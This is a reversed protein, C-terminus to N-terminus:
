SSASAAVKQQIRRNGNLKFILIHILLNSSIAKGLKNRFSENTAKLYFLMMQELASTLYLLPLTPDKLVLLLFHKAAVWCSLVKLM